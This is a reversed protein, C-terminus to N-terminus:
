IRLTSLLTYVGVDDDCRASRIMRTPLPQNASETIAQRRGISWAASAIILAALIGFLGYSLAPHDHPPGHAGSGDGGTVQGLDHMPAQAAVILCLVVMGVVGFARGKRLIPM